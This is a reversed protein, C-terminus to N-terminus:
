LQLEVHATKLQELAKGALEAEEASIAPSYLAKEAAITLVKFGAGLGNLRSGTAELYERMTMSPKMEVGTLRSVIVVAQWYMDIIWELGSPVFYGKVSAQAEQKQLSEKFGVDKPELGGRRSIRLTLASALGFPALVTLPNIVLISGDM